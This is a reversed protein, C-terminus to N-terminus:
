FEVGNVFTRNSDDITVVARVHGDEYGYVELCSRGCTVLNPSDWRGSDSDIESIQEWALGHNFAYNYIENLAKSAESDDEIGEMTALADQLRRQM